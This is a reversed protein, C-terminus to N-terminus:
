LIISELCFVCLGLGLVSDGGETLEAVVAQIDNVSDWLSSASTGLGSRFWSRCVLNAMVNIISELYLEAKTFGNLLGLGKNFISEEFFM